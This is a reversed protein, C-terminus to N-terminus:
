VRKKKLTKLFVCSFIFYILGLAASAILIYGQADVVVEKLYSGLESIEVLGGAQFVLFEYFLMLIGCGGIVLGFLFNTVRGYKRCCACIFDVIFIIGALTFLIFPIITVIGVLVDEFLAVFVDTDTVLMEWIDIGSFTGFCAIWDWGEEQPLAITGNNVLYGVVTLGIFLLACIMVFINRSIGSKKEAKAKSKAVPAVPANDAYYVPAPSTAYTNQPNYTPQTASTDIKNIKVGITVGCSPCKIRHKYGDPLSEMNAPPEFSIEARCSPCRTYM